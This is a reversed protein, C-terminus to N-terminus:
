TLPALLSTPYRQVKPGWLIPVIATFHTANSGQPANLSVYQFGDSLQDAGVEVVMCLQESAAGINTIESAASQSWRTWAEDGDLTAESRYFAYTVIDLDQSTGGTSANHEQLDFDSVDTSAGTAVVVFSVGQYDRLRTRLGTIAGAVADVPPTVSGINFIAGLARADTPM